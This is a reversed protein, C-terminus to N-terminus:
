AVHHIYQHNLNNKDAVCYPGRKAASFLQNMNGLVFFLVCCYIPDIILMTALIHTHIHAPLFLLRDLSSVVHASTLTHSLYFSYSKTPAVYYASQGM